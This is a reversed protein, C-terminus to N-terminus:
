HASIAVIGDVSIDANSMYLSGMVGANIDTLDTTAGVASTATFTGVHINMDDATAIGDADGFALVVMTESSEGPNADMYNALKVLVQEGNTLATMGQIALINDDTLTAVDISLEGTVELDTIAVNALGSYGASSLMVENGDVAFIDDGYFSFYGDTHNLGDTDGWAISDINIEDILVNLGLTVGSLRGNTTIDVHSGAAGLVQMNTIDLTKLEQGLGNASGLEIDFDMDGNLDFTGLGIRVFTAGNYLTADTAVDITMLELDTNLFMTNPELGTAIGADTAAAVAANYADTEAALAATEDPAVLGDILFQKVSKNYDFRAEAALVALGTATVASGQATSVAAGYALVGADDVAVNDRAGYSFTANLDSLGVWGATTGAGVGDADGWAVTDIHIGLDIEAGISVGAQGTINNMQSDPLATLGFASFPTLLMMAVIAILKKM